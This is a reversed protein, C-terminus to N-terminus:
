HTLLRAMSRSIHLYAMLDLTSVRKCSIRQIWRAWKYISCRAKM